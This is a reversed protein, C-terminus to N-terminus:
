KWNNIDSWVKQYNAMLKYNDFLEEGEKITRIATDTKPDYSPDESHNIYDVMLADPMIFLSGNIVAGNRQLILERVEKFLKGFHSYGINYVVPLKQAWVKEGKEITRLSIVGVGHVKSVGIKVKTTANLEHLQNDQNKSM